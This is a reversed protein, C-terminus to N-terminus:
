FMPHGRYRFLELLKYRVYLGMILVSCVIMDDSTIFGVHNDLIFAFKVASLASLISALAIAPFCSVRTDPVFMFVTFQTEINHLPPIVM